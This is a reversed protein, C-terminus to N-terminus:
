FGQREGFFENATMRDLMDGNADYAIVTDIFGNEFDGRYLNDTRDQLDDADANHRPVIEDIAGDAMILAIRTIGNIITADPTM